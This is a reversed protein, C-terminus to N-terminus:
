NRKSIQTDDKKEMQKLLQIYWVNQIDEETIGKFDEISDILRWYSECGYIIKKLEPVFIAPNTVPYNTLVGSESDFSSSFTYPLSGLYVGIFSKGKYEEACPQIECLAGCKSSSVNIKENKLENITLPFEIYLSDFKDCDECITYSAEKEENGVICKWDNNSSLFCYRCRQFKSKSTEIKKTRM